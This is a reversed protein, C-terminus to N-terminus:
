APVMGNGGCTPCLIGAERMAAITLVDTSKLHAPLNTVHAGALTIGPAPCPVFGSM